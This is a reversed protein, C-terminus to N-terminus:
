FWYYAFERSKLTNLVSFPNYMDEGQKAFRYGDYRKKMEAVAEAYTMDNKEALGVLEPKFNEELERETIGCVGSYAESMSIDELMNLDGSLMGVDSFRKAGTLLVFRLWRDAGKLVGLFGTLTDNIEASAGGEEMSRWIPVDCDDVLVVVRRGSKECVNRILEYFRTPPSIDRRDVGWQAELKSLIANLDAKIDDISKHSAISLDIHLVPYNTWDKELKEIALGRFLERKGEFYARLTSLLLSKGFRRPRGLFYYVGENALRYAWATKDVYVFGGTIINEFTQIGIPMKRM